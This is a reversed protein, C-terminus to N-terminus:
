SLAQIMYGRKVAFALAIRLLEFAKKDYIGCVRNITDIVL